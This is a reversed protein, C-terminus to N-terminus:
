LTGSIGPPSDLDAEFEIRQGPKLRNCEITLKPNEGGSAVTFRREEGPLLGKLSDQARVGNVAV